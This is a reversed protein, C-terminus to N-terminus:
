GSLTGRHARLKKMAEVVLLDLKYAYQDGENEYKEYLYTCSGPKYRIGKEEARRSLQDLASTRKGVLEKIEEMHLEQWVSSPSATGKPLNRQKQPLGKGALHPQELPLKASSFLAAAPDDELGLREKTDPQAVIDSANVFGVDADDHTAAEAEADAAHALTCHRKVPLELLETATLDLRTLLASDKLLGQLEPFRLLGHIRGKYPLELPYGRLLDRDKM